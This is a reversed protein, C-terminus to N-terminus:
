VMGVAQYNDVGLQHIRDIYIVTDLGSRGQNDIGGLWDMDTRDYPGTGDFVIHGHDRVKKLYESIIKCLGVETLNAFDEDSKQIVHMLNYGDVIVPMKNEAVYLALKGKEALNENAVKYNVM